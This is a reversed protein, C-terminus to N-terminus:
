ARRGLVVDNFDWGPERPRLPVVNRGAQRWRRSCVTEADKGPDDHDVLLILESVGDVPALIKVGNASVASWAPTLPQGAYPIRTATVLTTEIGEGVVLRSGIRPWLRVVGMTGLAMRGIRDIKGNAEHLAIRHLGCPMGDPATMLALLCPQRVGDYPCRGLFRLSDGIGSPLKDIAIGRTEALYREAWTGAIPRADNWLAMWLALAGERRDPKGPKQARPQTEGNWDLILAAAEARAMGEAEVLWTLRDGHAQCSFCHFHDAYLKCSPESEDHFPCLVMGSDSVPLSTLEYLPAACADLNGLADERDERELADTEVPTLVIESQTSSVLEEIAHEVPDPPTDDIPKLPDDPETLYHPGSHVSGALPLGAAWAPSETLIALVDADAVSGAPVEVVAEDHCHFVVPLGRAEFRVIAAALLDRAVAQVCNHVIFPGTNGCVVFRHRPGCNLIDFVPESYRTARVLAAARNQAQHPLATDDGWTGFPPSSTRDHATGLTHRYPPQNTQQESARSSYGVRLQEAHLRRRQKQTGGDLWAPLYAGYRGLFKRVAELAYLRSYRACRLEEVSPTDTLPLPRADIALGLLGSTEVARAGHAHLRMVPQAFAREFDQRCRSWMHLASGVLAKGWDFGRGEIDDPLRVATRHLGQAFAARIWGHSTLVEHDATMRVGDLPATERVGRNVIGGHRVWEEGDWILDSDQIDVICTWGQSTLVQTSASLCNEVVTGFWEHVERWQKKSNDHFALDPDEYKGPVLRANPYTLSRGSPLTIYLNGDELSAVIEPLPAENVRIAVGHRVAIKVTRFLRKWFECIRPHLRRWKQVDSYIEHDLRPDDFIRRWAGVGGGFGCALEACKGRQRESTTIAEVPKGLMGAATVRYAEFRKDGTRDFTRHLDLKWAEGALWALVRGEIMRLDPAILMHEPKACLMARSVSGLLALPNGFRAIHARDGTRVADVISLPAGMDNRALNHLQPGPSSWRGTTAGYIRFAGRLRDDADAYALIRSFKRVSARAGDRRLTLLERTLEDPDHALAAAVSRKSLSTLDHGRANIAARLKQVQDVSTVQGDTLDSLRINVADREAAAFTRAATVFERDIRVGRRNIGADILQLRREDESLPRLMPHQYCARMAVVDMVCRDHVLAHKVPDENWSRNKRPQSVAHLARVAEPDKRYPLGLAQSLLGLEAPRANALALRMSCRWRDLPIPPFGYRPTLILEYIFREFDYNHAVAQWGDTSSAAIFPGPVPDVPRWTAVEGDDVAWCLMLPETSPDCAYRWAGCTKLSCKSRSEIDIYLTPM